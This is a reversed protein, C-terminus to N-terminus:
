GTFLISIYMIMRDPLYPYQTKLYKISLNLYFLLKLGAGQLEPKKKSVQGSSCIKINNAKFNSSNALPFADEYALVGKNQRARTFAVALVQAFYYCLELFEAGRLRFAKKFGWM